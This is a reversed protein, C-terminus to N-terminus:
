QPLLLGSTIEQATYYGRRYSALVFSRRQEGVMWWIEVQLKELVPTSPSPNPPVEFPILTARWGARQGGAIAPDYLGELVTRRPLRQEVLLEEMKRRALMAGRDLETLRGANRVTGSLVSLTGAVAIAMILTAVLVELLTFGRQKM